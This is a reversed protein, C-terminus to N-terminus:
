YFFFNLNHTPPPPLRYTMVNSSPFCCPCCSRPLTLSPYFLWALWSNWTAWLSANVSLLSCPRPFFLTFFCHLTHRSLLSFHCPANLFPYLSSSNLPLHPCLLQFTLIYLYNLSLNKKKRRKKQKGGDRIRKTKGEKRDRGQVGGVTETISRSPPPQRDCM